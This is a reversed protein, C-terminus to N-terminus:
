VLRFAASGYFHPGATGDEDSKRAFSESQKEGVGVLSRMQDKAPCM